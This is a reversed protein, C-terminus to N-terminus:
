HIRVANNVLIDVAGERKAAEDFMADVSAENAVDGALALARGGRGAIEAVVTESAGRDLDVVVVRAGLSALAAASARGIGRAGGTVVALSGDLRILTQLDAM